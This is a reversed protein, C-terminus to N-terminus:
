LPHLADFWVFGSLMVHIPCPYSNFCITVIKLLAHIFLFMGSNDGFVIM